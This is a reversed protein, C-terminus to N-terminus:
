SQHRLEAGLKLNARRCAMQADLNDDYSKVMQLCGQMADFLYMVYVDGLSSCIPNSEQMIKYYM